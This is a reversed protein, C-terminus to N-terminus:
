VMYLYTLSLGSVILAQGLLYFLMIYYDRRKFDKIFTAQILILDSALFSLGGVIGLVMFNTFGKASAIVSTVTVLVLVSLYLNGLLSLYRNGTIKKSFPYFALVVVLMLFIAVVYFWWPVPNNALMIFLIESIYAFHGLLFSITGLIFLKRKHVFILFIDGVMGLLAGIYILPHSPLAILASIALLLLSFPKVIKRWKEVENFALILEILSVIVFLIFFILAGINIMLLYEKGLWLM